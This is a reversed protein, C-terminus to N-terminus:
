EVAKGLDIDIPGDTESRIAHVLHWLSYTRSSLMTVLVNLTTGRKIEQYQSKVLSRGEEELIM